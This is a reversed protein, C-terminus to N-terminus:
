PNLGITWNVSSGYLRLYLHRTLTVIGKPMVVNNLSNRCADGEEPVKGKKRGPKAFSLISARV